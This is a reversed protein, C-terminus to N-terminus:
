KKVEATVHKNPCYDDCTTQTGNYLKPHLFTEQKSFEYKVNKLHFVQFTQDFLCCAM